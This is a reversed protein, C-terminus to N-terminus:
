GTGIHNDPRNSRLPQYLNNAFTKEFPAAVDLECFQLASKAKPVLM